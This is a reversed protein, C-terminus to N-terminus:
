AAHDVLIQQGGQLSLNQQMAPGVLSGKALNTWNYSFHSVQELVAAVNGENHISLITYGYFRLARLSKQFDGDNSIIVIMAPPPHEYAFDFMNLMIHRDAESEEAQGQGQQGQIPVWRQNQQGGLVLGQSDQFRNLQQATKSVISGTSRTVPELVPDLIPELLDFIPELVLDVPDRVLEVPELVFDLIPKLLDVSDFIPELVLDVPVLVL